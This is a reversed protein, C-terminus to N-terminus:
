HAKFNYIPKIVDIIDVTDTINGMIKSGAVFEQNLLETVQSITASDINDTFVTAENYKGKLTMGM